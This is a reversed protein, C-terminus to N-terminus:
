KLKWVSYTLAISTWIFQEFFLSVRFTIHKKSFLLISLKQLDDYPYTYTFIRMFYPLSESSWFMPNIWCLAIQYCLIIITQFALSSSLTGLFIGTSNGCVSIVTLIILFQLSFIDMEFKFYLLVLTSLGIFMPVFFLNARMFHAFILHWSRVGMVKQRDLFGFVRDFLIGFLTWAQGFQFSYYVLLGPITKKLIRFDDDNIPRGDIPIIDILDYLPRTGTSRIMHERNFEETERYLLREISSTSIARSYDGYFYGFSQPDHETDAPIARDILNGGFDDDILLYGFIRTSLSAEQAEELGCFLIHLQSSSDLNELFKKTQNSATRSDTGTVCIAQEIPPRRMFGSILLTAIFYLSCLLIPGYLNFNIDSAIRIFSARIIEHDSYPNYYHAVPPSSNTSICDTSEATYCDIPPYPSLQQNFRQCICLAVKELEICNFERMLKEPKDHRILSGEYMYAISDANRVEEIYHTTVVITMGYKDRCEELFNWIKLRSIPDSGVTPEDLILLTPRHILAMALSVRRKQGGSMTFIYGLDEPLDIRDQLDQIRKRVEKQDINFVRGCFQFIARAQWLDNLATEQPMYGIFSSPLSSLIEGNVCGGLEVHGSSPKILGILTRLLTTKGGGSSGILGIISQKPLLFNINNLVKFSKGNIKRDVYVKHFRGVFESTYNLESKIIM